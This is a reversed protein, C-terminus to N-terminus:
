TVFTVVLFLLQHSSYLLVISHFVPMMSLSLMTRDIGSYFLSSILHISIATASLLHASLRINAAWSCVNLVFAIFFGMSLCFTDGSYLSQLSFTLLTAWITLEHKKGLHFGICSSVCRVQFFLVSAGTCSIQSQILLCINRVDVLTVAPSHCIYFVKPSQLGSLNPYLVGFVLITTMSISFLSHLIM